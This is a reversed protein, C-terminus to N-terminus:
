PAVLAAIEARSPMSPTAGPRTVSISSAATAWRTAEDLDGTELWLACLVGVFTDGAATTDVAEVRRAPHRAVVRGDQARLSGEAGLTVIVNGGTSRSLAVAAEEVGPVGALQVAEHENPVLLSLGALSERPVDVVPAPTLVTRVGAVAAVSRAEEVVSLPLEWQMVLLEAGEIAERQAATLATVTGNAGPVVVIANDGSDLVSIHATGTPTGVRALASTEIGDADMVSALLSGHDDDGVAGAFRVPAGARAAAVAQNLGKGGPVTSFDHGAITEGVGPVRQQRVVLDINASGLVVIGSGTM